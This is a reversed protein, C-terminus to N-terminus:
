DRPGNPALARLPDRALNRGKARERTTNALVDNGDLEFWTPHERPRERLDRAKRFERMTNVLM